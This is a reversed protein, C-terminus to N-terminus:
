KGDGKHEMWWAIAKLQLATFAGRTLCVNRSNPMWTLRPADSILTNGASIAVGLIERAKEETMQAALLADREATIRDLEFQVWRLHQAVEASSCCGCSEASNCAQETDWKEHPNPTDSM